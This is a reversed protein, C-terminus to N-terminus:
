RSVGRIYEFHNVFEKALERSDIIAVVERNKGWGSLSANASGTIVTEGDVVFTKDHITVAGGEDVEMGSTLYERLPSDENWSDVIGTVRVGNSACFKLAALIEPDTFAFMAFCIERRAGMLEKIVRKRAEQSPCLYFDINGINVEDLSVGTEIAEFYRLFLEAVSPSEFVLFSNSDERLSGETFNGTGFVVVQRDVVLFKSHVLAAATDSRIEFEPSKAFARDVTSDDIMVEIRVGRRELHNLCKMIETEDLSYSVLIVEEQADELVNLIRQVARGDDTFFVSPVAVLAAEILVLVFVLLRKMWMVLISFASFEREGGPPSSPIRVRPRYLAM